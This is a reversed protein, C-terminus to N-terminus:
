AKEGPETQDQQDGDSRRDGEAPNQRPQVGQLIQDSATLGASGRSRFDVVLSLASRKAGPASPYVM